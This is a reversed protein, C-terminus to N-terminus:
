ARIASVAREMGAGSVGTKELLFWKGVDNACATTWGMVQMAMVM